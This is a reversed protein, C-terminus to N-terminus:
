ISTHDDEVMIQSAVGSITSELFHLSIRDHYKKQIILYKNTWKKYLIM